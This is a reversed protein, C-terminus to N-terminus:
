RRESLGEPGFREEETHDYAIKLQSGAGDDSSMWMSGGLM